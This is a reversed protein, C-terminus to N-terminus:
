RRLGAGDHRRRPPPTGVHAVHNQRLIGAYENPDDLRMLHLEVLKLVFDRKPQLRRM